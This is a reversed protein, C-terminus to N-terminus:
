PSSLNLHYLFSRKVPGFPLMENEAWSTTVVDAIVEGFPTWAASMSPSPSTSRRSDYPVLSLM